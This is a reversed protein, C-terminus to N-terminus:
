SLPRHAARRRASRRRRRARRRTGPRVPRPPARGARARGSPPRIPRCTARTSAMAANCSTTCGNAPAAHTPTSSGGPRQPRGRARSTTSAPTSGGNTATSPLSRRGRPPANATWGRVLVPLAVRDLGLPGLTGGYPTADPRRIATAVAAFISDPDGRLGGHPKFRATLLPTPDKPPGEAQCDPRVGAQTRGIAKRGSAPSEHARTRV